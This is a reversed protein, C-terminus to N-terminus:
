IRGKKRTMLFAGLLVLGIIIYPLKSVMPVGGGEGGYSGGGGGPSAGPAGASGGFVENMFKEAATGAVAGAGKLLSALLGAGLLSSSSPLVSAVTGAGTAITAGTATGSLTAAAPEAWFVGSGAAVEEAFMGGGVEGGVALPAAEIATAGVGTAVPAFAGAAAAGGLIATGAIGVVTGARGALKTGEWKSVSTFKNAAGLTVMNLQFATVQKAGTWVTGATQKAAKSISKKISGWGM